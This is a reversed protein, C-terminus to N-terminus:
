TKDTKLSTCVNDSRKYLIVGILCLGWCIYTHSLNNRNLHLVKCKGKNLEILNRDMCMELRNFDGQIDPCCEQSKTVGGLKPDDAFKSSVLGQVM